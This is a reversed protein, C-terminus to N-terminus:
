YVECMGHLPMSSRLGGGRISNAHPGDELIGLARADPETASAPSEREVADLRGPSPWVSRLGHGSKVVKGRGDRFTPHQGFVLGSRWSSSPRVIQHM